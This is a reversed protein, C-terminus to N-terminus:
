EGEGPWHGRSIPIRHLVRCPIESGCRCVIRWESWSWVPKHRRALTLAAAIVYDEYTVHRPMDREERFRIM